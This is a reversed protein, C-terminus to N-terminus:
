HMRGRADFADRIHNIRLLEPKSFRSQTEKLYVEIVDLRPQKKTYNKSLYSYTAKITNGRKKTDVAKGPVGFQTEEYSSYSRTKVEVFVIYDNDEAVIDLENHSFHLNRGIITYGNKLLFNVAIDEGLKGLEQSKTESM